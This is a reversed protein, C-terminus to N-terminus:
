RTESVEDSTQDATETLLLPSLEPFIELSCEGRLRDLTSSVSRFRQQQAPMAPLALYAPLVNRLQSFLQERADATDDSCLEPRAEYWGQLWQAHEKLGALAKQKLAEPLHRISYCEPEQVPHLRWRHPQILGDMVLRRQLDGLHLINFVSVATSFSLKANPCRERLARLNDLFRLWNKGKRILEGRQGLGDVSVFINLKSFRPWLDLVNISKYQLESLNTSYSLAVDTLGREILENLVLYHAEMLLPEGGAFYIMKLQRLSDGVGRLFDAPDQVSRLLSTSGATAGLVKADEFWASSSGHWCMRCRFNCLNSFRVDWSLPAESLAGDPQVHALREVFDAGAANYKQRQSRGGNEEVEYCKWCRDDPEDDLLKLRFARMPAGNWLGQIGGAGLKGFDGSAECCPMIPGSSPVHVHAFPAMCFARSQGIWEKRESNEM